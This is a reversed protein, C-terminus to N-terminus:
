FLQERSKLLRPRPSAWPSIMTQPKHQMSLIVEQKPCFCVPEWLERIRKRTGTWAARLPRPLYASPHFRLFSNIQQSNCFWLLNRSSDSSRGEMWSHLTLTLGTGAYKISMSRGALLPQTTETDEVPVTSGSSALATSEFAFQLWFATQQSPYLM